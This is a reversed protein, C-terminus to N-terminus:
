TDICRPEDESQSAFSWPENGATTTLDFTLVMDPEDNSRRHYIPLYYWICCARTNLRWYRERADSPSGALQQSYMHVAMNLCCSRRVWLFTEVVPLYPLREACGAACYWVDHCSARFFQADLCFFVPGHTCVYFYTCVITIYGPLVRSFVSLM